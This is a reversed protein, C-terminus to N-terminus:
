DRNINLSNKEDLIDAKQAKSMIKKIRDDRSKQYNDSVGNVKVEELYFGQADNIYFHCNNCTIKGDENIDFIMNAQQKKKNMYEAMNLDLIQMAKIRVKYLFVSVEPDEGDLSKKFDALKFLESKIEDLDKKYLIYSFPVVEVRQMLQKKDETYLPTGVLKLSFTDKVAKNLNDNYKKEMAVYDLVEQPVDQNYDAQYNKLFDGQHVSGIGLMTEFYKAEIGTLESYDINTKSSDILYENFRKALSQVELQKDDMTKDEYVVEKSKESKAKEKSDIQNFLIFISVGFLGFALVVLIVGIKFSNKGKNKDKKM